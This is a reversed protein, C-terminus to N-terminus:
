KISLNRFVKLCFEGKLELNDSSITRVAVRGFIEKWCTNYELLDMYRTLSIYITAKTTDLGRQTQTDSIKDRKVVGIICSFDINLLIPADCPRIAPPPSPPEAISPSPAAIVVYCITSLKFTCMIWTISSPAAIGAQSCVFLRCFKFKISPMKPIYYFSNHVLAAAAAPMVGDMGQNIICAIDDDDADDDDETAWM